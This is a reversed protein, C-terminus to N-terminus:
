ICVRQYRTKLVLAARMGKFLGYKLTLSNEKFPNKLIYDKKQFAPSTRAVCRIGQWIKEAKGLLFHFLSPGAWTLRRVLSVSLQIFAGKNNNKTRKNISAPIHVVRNEFQM